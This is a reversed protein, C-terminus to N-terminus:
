RLAPGHIRFAADHRSGRGDRGGLGAPVRVAIRADARDPDPRAGPDTIRELREPHRGPRGSGGRAGLHRSQAPPHTQAPRCRAPAVRRGSQRAPADGRPRDDDGLSCGRAIPGEDEPRRRRAEWAAVSLVIIGFGFLLLVSPLAEQAVEIPDRSGATTDTDPAQGGDPPTSPTLAELVTTTDTATDDAADPDLLAGSVTASNVQPGGPTAAPVTYDISVTATAGAAITGLACSLDPGAGVPACSGQSPTVAGQSFGGPWTDTLAVGTADSPGDNAVTLTYTHTIGDGATVVTLGDTKTLALDAQGVIETTDDADIGLPQEASAVTATNTVPGPTALAAVGYPVTVTWTAGPPLSAPLSCAIVNGSSATCDGGLDATPVGAIFGAPVTDSLTVADADSPGDGHVTITYAHGGSGAFVQTEGDSKTVTLDAVEIVTTTDTATDDAADPDLLAGSVTASNVQPGGPTAAPVTYDISVTATAGAAITGLACSLDPGAGVPACSGQSPTVAGQSFGGPWTDTLVVGTADSPGDNAVTLTYTHTMGDGATVVTLGDTKTLALDAEPEGTVFDSFSTM